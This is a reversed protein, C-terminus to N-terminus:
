IEVNFIDDYLSELQQKSYDRKRGGKSNSSQKYNNKTANDQEKSLWNGIFRKIGSRTKRKTPNNISWASMNRLHTMVDVGPFLNKMQEFYDEKVEYESGDNLLITIITKLQPTTDIPPTPDVQKADCMDEKNKDISDKGISVQTDLKSVNQIREIYSKKEDLTLQAKEEVYSTPKFRDSQIYNHIKWHKIVIIGSEFTLIYRKIALIRIDDDSAGIMKQIKKPNNVFGEDDARMALHFYLAQTSLPMDLFVDSDIISKSFMRREAM